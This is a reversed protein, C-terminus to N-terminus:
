PAKPAWDVPAGGDVVQEVRGDLSLLRVESRDHADNTTVTVAVLSSGDPSWAFRPDATSVCYCRGLDAVEHVGTGDASAVMLRYDQAAVGRGAYEGADIYGVLVGDPSWSVDYIFRGPGTETAPLPTRTGTTDDLVFLRSRQRDGRGLDQVGVMRLRDPSYGSPSIGDPMTIAGRNRGNNGYVHTHPGDVDYSTV